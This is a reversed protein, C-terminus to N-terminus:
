GRTRRFGWRSFRNETAARAEGLVAQPVLKLIAPIAFALLTVDDVWGLIPLADPIFDIPSVMYVGLLLAGIKIFLPTAPNRCAYWLVAAERGALKFLRILRLFM